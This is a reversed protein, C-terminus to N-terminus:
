EVAFCPLGSCVFIRVVTRRVADVVQGGTWSALSFRGNQRLLGAVGNASCEEDAVTANNVSLAGILLCAGVFLNTM